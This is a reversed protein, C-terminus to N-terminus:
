RWGFHLDRDGGLLGFGEPRVGGATPDLLNPVSHCDVFRRPADGFDVDVPARQGTEADGFDLEAGLDVRAANLGGSQNPRSSVLSGPHDLM